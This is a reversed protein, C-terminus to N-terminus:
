FKNKVRKCTRRASHTMNSRNKKERQLWAASCFLMRAHTNWLFIDQHMDNVHSYWLTLVERNWVTVNIFLITSPLYAWSYEHRWRVQQYRRNRCIPPSMILRCSQAAFCSQVSSIHYRVLIPNKKYFTFIVTIVFNTFICHCTKYRVLLKHGFTTLITMLKSRVTWATSMNQSQKSLKFEDWVSIPWAIYLEEIQFRVLLCLIKILATNLLTYGYETIWNWFHM